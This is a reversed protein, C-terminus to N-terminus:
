LIMYVIMYTIRIHLIYLNGDILLREPLDIAHCFRQPQLSGLDDALREPLPQTLVRGLLELPFPRFGQLTV